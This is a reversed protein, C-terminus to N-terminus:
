PHGKQGLAPKQFPEERKHSERFLWKLISTFRSRPEISFVNAGLRFGRVIHRSGVDTKLDFVLLILPPLKDLTRLSGASPGSMM